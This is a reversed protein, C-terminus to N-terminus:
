IRKGQLTSVYRRMTRESIDNKVTISMRLEYASAPDLNENLLPLIMTYKKSAAEDSNQKKMLTKSSHHLYILCCRTSEAVIIMAASVGQFESGNM